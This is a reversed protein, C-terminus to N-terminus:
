CIQLTKNKSLFSHEKIFAPNIVACTRAVVKTAPVYCVNNKYKKRRPKNGRGETLVYTTTQVSFTPVDFRHDFDHKVPVHGADVEPVTPARVRQM